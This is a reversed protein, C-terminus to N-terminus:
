GVSFGFLWSIVDVRCGVFVSGCFGFFFFFLGTVFSSVSVLFKFPPINM